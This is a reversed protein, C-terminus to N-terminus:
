GDVMQMMVEDNHTLYFNWGSLTWDNMTVHASTMITLSWVKTCLSCCCDLNHVVSQYYVLGAKWLQHVSACLQAGCPKVHAM